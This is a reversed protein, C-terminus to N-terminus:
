GIEKLQRIIYELLNTLFAYGRTKYLNYFDMGLLTELNKKKVFKDINVIKNKDM